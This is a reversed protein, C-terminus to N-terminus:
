DENQLDSYHFSCGRADFIGYRQDSKQLIANSKPGGLEPFVVNSRAKAPFSADSRLELKDQGYANLKNTPNGPTFPREVSCRLLNVIATSSTALGDMIKMSSGVEPSSALAAAITILVTLFVTSVPRVTTHVM